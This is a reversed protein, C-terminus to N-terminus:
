LYCVKLTEVFRRYAHNNFDHLEAVMDVLWETLM